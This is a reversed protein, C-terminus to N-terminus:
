RALKKKLYNVWPIGSPDIRSLMACYFSAYSGLVLLALASAFPTAGSLEQRTLGIGNKAVITETIRSRKQIRAHAARSEFFVYRSLAHAAVPFRFGEILHHNLEPLAFFASFTKGNENLQNAFIHLAGLLIDPGFLVPLGGHLFGALRKAPNTREAVEPAYRRQESIIMHMADAFASPTFALVGLRVLIGLQGFLSYGLGMRPQGCPNSKPNFQYLPLGKRRLFDALAGGTTIGIARVRRTIAEKAAAITEETTGSYSSLFVVSRRTVSHPLAYGSVVSFPVRLKGAFASAISHAGIASGGMGAVVVQDIGKRYAAPIAICRSADWAERCQDALVAISDRMRSGDYRDFTKPNDLPNM